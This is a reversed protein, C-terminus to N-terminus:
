YNLRTVKIVPKKNWICGSPIDLANVWLQTLRFKFVMEESMYYGDYDDAVMCWNNLGFHDTKYKSDFALVKLPTDLIAMNSMDLDVAIDYKGIWSTMGESSCWDHWSDDLAFWFGKPKIGSAQTLDSFKLTALPTNSNHTYM